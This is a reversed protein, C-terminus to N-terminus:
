EFDADLSKKDVDMSDLMTTLEDFLMNRTGREQALGTKEHENYVTDVRLNTDSALINKLQRNHGIKAWKARPESGCNMDAELRRAFKNGQVIKENIPKWPEIGDFSKFLISEVGEPKSVLTDGHIEERKIRGVKRREARNERSKIESNHKRCQTKSDKGRM